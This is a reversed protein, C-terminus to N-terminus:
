DGAEGVLDSTLGASVCGQGHPHRRAAARVEGDDTFNGHPPGCVAHVGVVWSGGSWSLQLCSRGEPLVVEISTEGATAPPPEQNDRHASNDDVVEPPRRCSSRCRRGWGGTTWGFEGGRAPRYIGRSTTPYPAVLYMV